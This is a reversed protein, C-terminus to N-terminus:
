DRGFAGAPPTIWTFGQAGSGRHVGSKFDYFFNNFYNFLLGQSGTSLIMYNELSKLKSIVNQIAFIAV